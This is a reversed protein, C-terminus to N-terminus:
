RLKLRLLRAEQAMTVSTVGMLLSILLTKKM